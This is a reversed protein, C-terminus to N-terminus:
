DILRVDQVFSGRWVARTWARNEAKLTVRSTSIKDIAPVSVKRQASWLSVFSRCLLAIFLFGYFGIIAAFLIYQMKTM